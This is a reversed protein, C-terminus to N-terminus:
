FILQAIFLGIVQGTLFGILLIPLTAHLLELSSLGSFLTMDKSEIGVGDVSMEVKWTIGGSYKSIFQYDVGAYDFTNQASKSCSWKNLSEERNIYIVGNVYIDVFGLGDYICVLENGQYDFVAHLKYHHLGFVKAILNMKPTSVNSKNSKSRPDNSIPYTM